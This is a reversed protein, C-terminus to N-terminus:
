IGEAYVHLKFGDSNIKGKQLIILSYVMPTKTKTKTKKKKKLFTKLRSINTESLM